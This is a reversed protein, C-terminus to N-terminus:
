NKGGGKFFLVAVHQLSKMVEATPHVDGKCRSNPCRMVLKGDKILIGRNQVMAHGGKTMKVLDTSCHPCKM